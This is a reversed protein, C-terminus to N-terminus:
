LNVKSSVTYVELTPYFLFEKDGGWFLIVWSVFVSVMHEESIKSPPLVSIVNGKKLDALGRQAGRDTRGDAVFIHVLPFGSYTM